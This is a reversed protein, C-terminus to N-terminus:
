RSNKRVKNMLHTSKQHNKETEYDDISLIRYTHNVLEINFWMNIQSGVPLTKQSVIITKNNTEILIVAQEGDEMRDLVGL